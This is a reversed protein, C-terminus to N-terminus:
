EIEIFTLANSESLVADIETYFETFEAEFKAVYEEIKIPDVLKWENMALFPKSVNDVDEKAIKTSDKGFSSELLTQLNRQVIENNKQLDAANLKIQKKIHTIYKNEISYLEKQCIAEAVTYTKKGINIITKANSMIIANKIKARRNILAEISDKSSVVSKEFEEKTYQGALKKDGQQIFVPVFKSIEDELKKDILKLEALARHITIKEM